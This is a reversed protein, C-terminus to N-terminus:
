GIANGFLVSSIVGFISKQLFFGTITISFMQFAFFVKQKTFSSDNPADKEHKSNWRNRGNIKYLLDFSLFQTILPYHWVSRLLPHNTQWKSLNQSDSELKM